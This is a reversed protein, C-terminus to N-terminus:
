TINGNPLTRTDENPDLFKADMKKLIETNSVGQGRCSRIASRFIKKTQAPLTDSHISQGQVETHTDMVIALLMNLMLMNVIATFTWFWLNAMIRNYLVMMDWEMEGAGM